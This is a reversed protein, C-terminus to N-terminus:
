LRGGQRYLSAEVIHERQVLNSHALDAITRAIRATRVVGRGGLALRAAVTELCIQADRDLHIAKLDLDRNLKGQENRARQIALAEQVQARMNESSSGYAGEIVKSAKPRYVHIHMDIRDLLPGGMRAQYSNIRADSCSCQKASDGLYGCPCPNAAAIFLVDCPFSYVGDVRVLHVSREELPQRLAQLVNTAFEPLEDLFLVGAHALSLEGPVVPRGGGILGACSISHHPHRFPRRGCRLAEGDQGVVSSVLLAEEKQQADMPPLISPLRAALMTKGSGPPGVMLTGHGGAAAIVLARKASEQDVVDEFDLKEFDYAKLSTNSSGSPFGYHQKVWPIGRVLYSLRNIGICRDYNGYCDANNACILTLGREEALHQYALAGRPSFISGDLTLEGILLCNEIDDAPMQGSHILIAVAVALDLGTGTKRLEGPAFNITIHERPMRFGSSKLACRIRSRSELVASDPLGVMTIGPIGASTALEVRVPIAQIGRLTATQITIADSM